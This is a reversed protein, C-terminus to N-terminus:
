QVTLDSIRRIHRCQFASRKSKSKSSKSPPPAPAMAAPSRAFAEPDGSPPTPLFPVAKFTAHRGRPTLPGRRRTGSTPEGSDQRMVGGPGTLAGSGITEIYSDDALSSVHALPVESPTSALSTGTSEPRPTGSFLYYDMPPPSLRVPSFLLMESEGSVDPLMDRTRLCAPQTAHTPEEKAGVPCFTVASGRRQDRLSRLLDEMRQLLQQEIALSAKSDQIAETAIASARLAITNARQLETLLAGRFLLVPSPDGPPDVM